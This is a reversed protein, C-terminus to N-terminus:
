AQTYRHHKTFGSTDKINMILHLRDQDGRNFVQHLRNVHIAYCSGDAPMHVAEGETEFICGPNTIIPIHLRVSYEVDSGDRHLKSQGHAKLISLRARLPNLGAAAVADIVSALYGTCIETPKNYAATEFIGLAAAKEAVTKGPLFGPEYLKEGSAWGNMYSGTASLVSWGGFGASVMLPKLPQVVEEFHKKLAAVDFQLNLKEYIM